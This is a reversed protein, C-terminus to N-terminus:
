AAHLNRKWPYVECVPVYKQWYSDIEIRELDKYKELIEESSLLRRYGSETKECVELPSSHNIKGCIKCYSAPYPHAGGSAVLLCDVYEHKHKSKINSKSTSSEKKKIYKPIDGQEYNNM